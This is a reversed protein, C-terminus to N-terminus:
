PRDTGYYTARDEQPMASRTARWPSGADEASRGAATTDPLRAEVRPGRQTSPSVALRPVSLILAAAAAAGIVAPSWARRQPPPRRPALAPRELRFGLWLVPLFAVSFVAWGFALHDVQVLYHQMDTVYGAVIIVYVRIWNAVMGVVVAVAFLLLRRRWTSLFALGYFATLVM